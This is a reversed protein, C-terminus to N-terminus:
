WDDVCKALLLWLPTMLCAQKASFFAISLVGIRMLIDGMTRDEIAGELFQVV